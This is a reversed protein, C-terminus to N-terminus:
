RLFSEVRQHLREVAQLAAKSDPERGLAKVSEEWLFRPLMARSAADEIAIGVPGALDPRQEAVLLLANSKLSIELLAAHDAGYKEALQAGLRSARDMMHRVREAPKDSPRHRADPNEIRLENALRQTERSWGEVEEPTAGDLDALESLGLKGGLLWTLHRTNYALMPTRPLPKIAASALPPGNRPTTAFIPTPKAEPEPEPEFVPEDFVDFVDVPTPEPLPESAAVPAAPTEAPEDFFPLSTEAETPPLEAVPEEPPAAPLSAEAMAIPETTPETAPPEPLEAAPTPDEDGWLEALLGSDVPEVTTPPKPTTKFVPPSEAPLEEAFAEVPPPEVAVPENAVPAEAVPEAKAPVAADGFLEDLDFPEDAAAVSTDATESSPEDAQVDTAPDEAPADPKDIMGAYADGLFDGFDGDDSEEPAEEVPAEEPEDAAGFLREGEESVEASDDMKEWPFEQEPPDAQDTAYRDEVLPEADAGDEAGPTAPEFSPAETDPDTQSTDYPVETPCGVLVPLMLVAVLAFWRSAALPHGLRDFSSSRDM